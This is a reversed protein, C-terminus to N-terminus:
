NQYFLQIFKSKALEFQKTTLPVMNFDSTPGCCEIPIIILIPQSDDFAYKYYTRLRNMYGDHNAMMIYADENIQRGGNIGLYDINSKHSELVEAKHTQVMPGTVFSFVYDVYEKFLQENKLKDYDVSSSDFTLSFGM